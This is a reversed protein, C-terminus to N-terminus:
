GGKSHCHKKERMNEGQPTSQKVEATFTVVLRLLLSPSKRNRSQLSGDLRNANKEM